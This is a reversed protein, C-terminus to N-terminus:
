GNAYRIVHCRLTESAPVLNGYLVIQMSKNSLIGDQLNCFNHLVQTGNFSMESAIVQYDHGEPFVLWYPTRFDYQWPVVSGDDVNRLLILWSPYNKITQLRSEIQIVSKALLSSAPLLLCLFLLRRWATM